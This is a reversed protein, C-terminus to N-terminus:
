IERGQIYYWGEEIFEVLETANKHKTTVVLNYVNIIEKGNTKFIISHFHLGRGGHEYGLIYDEGSKLIYYLKREPGFGADSSNFWTKSIKFKKHKVENLYNKIFDPLKKYSNIRISNIAFEKVIPLITNKKLSDQCYGRSKVMLLMCIVILYKM